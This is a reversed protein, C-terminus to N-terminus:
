KWYRKTKIFTKQADLMDKLIERETKRMRGLLKTATGPGVGRGSLAIVARKGYANVLSAIQEYEKLKNSEEETLKKGEGRKQFLQSLDEDSKAYTIVSSKCKPCKIKEPLAKIREYFINGCYFCILKAMRDDIRKKM